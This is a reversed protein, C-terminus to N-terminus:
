FDGLFMEKENLRVNGGFGIMAKIKLDKLETEEVTDM